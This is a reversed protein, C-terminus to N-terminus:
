SRGEEVGFGAPKKRWRGCAGSTEDAEMVVEDIGDMLCRGGSRSLSLATLSSADFGSPGCNGLERMMVVEGCTSWIRYPARKTSKDIKRPSKHQENERERM